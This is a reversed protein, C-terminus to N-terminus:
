LRVSPRKGDYSALGPQKAAWDPQIGNRALTEFVRAPSGLDVWGSTRDRLVRLRRTEHSLVDRSFDVTPLHPYAADLSRDAIARTVSRVAQPFHSCFMELFTAAQGLTVFTNWLCGRALLARATALPPKEWFRNVGSLQRGEFHIVDGKSEIWGYEVEPYEAEAGILILPDPYQHVSEVALRVTSRFSDDCSYYHDCPFFGVVANPDHKLIHVLALIIAIGTGRNM